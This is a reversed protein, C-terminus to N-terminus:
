RDLPRHRLRDGTRQTEVPDGYATADYETARRRYYAMQEHLVGDAMGGLM